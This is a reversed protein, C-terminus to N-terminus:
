KLDQAHSENRREDTGHAHTEEEPDRELHGTARAAEKLRLNGSGDGQHGNAVDQHIPVGPLHALSDAGNLTM